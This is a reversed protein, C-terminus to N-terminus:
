VAPNLTIVTIEPPCRFRFPVMVAGIGRNVNLQMGDGLNFLGHVYKTGMPPLMLPPLFPRRVQGGHTHGSLVLSIRRGLAFDAFDPEHAMLILSENGRRQPLAADLDPRQELADKIGALWLRQGSRELPVYSNALVPIKHTVLADTVAASDVIVDHNGLIAYRLPCTLRSLVEACQYGRTIALRRPLPGKSVFDGTLLVMDPTLANVRRVIAELFFKEDYLEFHFDSIQVIKMGAFADPLGSLTISRHITEIEHRSIEGAYLALAAASGAALGLFNRRTLVTDVVSVPPEAVLTSHEM